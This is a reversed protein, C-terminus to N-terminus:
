FVWASVINPRPLDHPNKGLKIAMGKLVEVAQIIDRKRYPLKGIRAGIYFDAPQTMAFDGLLGGGCMVYVEIQLSKLDEETAWRLDDEVNIVNGSLPSKITGRIVGKARDYELM